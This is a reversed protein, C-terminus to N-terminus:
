LPPSASGICLELFALNGFRRPVHAGASRRLGELGRRVAAEGDVSRYLQWLRRYDGPESVGAAEGLKLLAPFLRPNHRACLLHAAERRRQQSLDSGVLADEFTLLLREMAALAEAHAMRLADCTLLNREARAIAGVHAGSEGLLRRANGAGIPYGLLGLLYLDAPSPTATSTWLQLLAAPHTSDVGLAAILAKGGTPTSAARVAELAYELAINLDDASVPEWGPPVRAWGPITPLLARQGGDTM